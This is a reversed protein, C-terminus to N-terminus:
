QSDSNAALARLPMDREKSRTSPIRAQQTEALAFADALLRLRRAHLAAEEAHLRRLQAALHGARQAEVEDREADDM